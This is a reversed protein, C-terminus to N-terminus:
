GGVLIHEGYMDMCVNTSFFLIPFFNLIVGKGFQYSDPELDSTLNELWFYIKLTFNLATIHCYIVYM